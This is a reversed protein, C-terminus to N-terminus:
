LGLDVWADDLGEIAILGSGARLMVARTEDEFTLVVALATRPRGTPDFAVTDDAGAVVSTIEVGRFVADLPYNRVFPGDGYPSLLPEGRSDTARYSHGRLDFRIELQEEYLAARNQVERLDRALLRAANDLTVAPRAFYAPIGISAMVSLVALVLMLEFITFAGRRGSGRARACRPSPPASM